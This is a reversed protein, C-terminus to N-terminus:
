NLIKDKSRSNTQLIIKLISYLLSNHKYMHIHWVYQLITLIKDNSFM